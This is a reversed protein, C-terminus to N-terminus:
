TCWRRTLTVRRRVPFTTVSTAVEVDEYWKREVPFSVNRKPSGVRPESKALNAFLREWPRLSKTERVGEIQWRLAERRQLKDNWRYRTSDNIDPLSGCTRRWALHDCPKDTHAYTPLGLERWSSDIEHQVFMAAGYYGRLDLMNSYEIWSALSEARRQRNWRTRFKVPTVNEGRFADMGCSERFGGGTCCKGPNFMLGVYPFYQCVAEYDELSCIIDDGYVKIRSCAESLSHGNHHVLVNVALAFFVLSEVPFCLASGMPAFKRLEVKRGSPLVTSSTRSCLLYDLVHTNAFLAQVLKVSVRDSADKMDLTVWNGFRSGSLAYNRNVSQHTFNVRGSTLECENICRILEAAIGQQIWQYELPECSILRPGRSDKPVFVARATGHELVELNDLWTRPAFPDKPGILEDYGALYSLCPIYWEAFPFIREIQIFLRKFRWKEWARERTAVAGPGHRPQIQEKVFGSVVRAVLARSGMIIPCDPIKDPLTADTAIFSEELTREQEQTYPLEYKYWQYCIQRVHKVVIPDADCLAHGTHDFLRKFLWGLFDPYGSRSTFGPYNMCGDSTSIARDLAKGLAPLTKTLFSVGESAVRRRVTRADRAVHSSQGYYDAIDTLLAATLQLQFELESNKSVM